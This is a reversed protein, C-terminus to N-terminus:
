RLIEGPGGGFRPNVVSNFISGFTYSFGVSMDYRYDTRLERLRLLIDHESADRKVLALQDRILAASGGIELSFGRFLRIEIDGDFEVRYQTVDDLFGSSELSADGRGWPQVVDYGVIFAQTPRTERFKGFITEERYDFASVGLSYQFTLQRRSAEDYPWLSYEIAPAARIALKTNRFTSSSVAAEAGVGWHPGLSKVLVGGASYNELLRTVTIEEVSDPEVEVEVEFLTRLFEADAAFGFKWRDTIRRAELSADLQRDNVSEEREVSGDASVEFVWANWPDREGPRRLRDEEDEDPADFALRFRTALPTRAVYPALGLQITRILGTRVADDVDTPQTVYQLTDSRGAFTALGVLNVTYQSGGAGTGIRTVLVHIDADARDRVYAVWPMETRVFDFDCFDCDLFVRLAGARQPPATPEQAQMATAAIISLAAARLTRGIV